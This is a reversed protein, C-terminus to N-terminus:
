ERPADSGLPATRRVVWAVLEFPLPRDGHPWTRDLHASLEGTNALTHRMSGDVVKAEKHDVVSALAACVLDRIDEPTPDTLLDAAFARLADISVYDDELEDFLETLLRDVASDDSTMTEM